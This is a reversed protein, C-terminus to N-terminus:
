FLFLEACLDIPKSLAEVERTFLPFFLRKLEERVRGHDILLVEEHLRLLWRM